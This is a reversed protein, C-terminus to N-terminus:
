PRGPLPSQTGGPDEERTKPFATVGLPDRHGGGRRRLWGRCGLHGCGVGLLPLSAGFKGKSRGWGMSLLAEGRGGDRPLPDAVSGAWHWQWPALGSVHGPLGTEALYCWEDGRAKGQVPALLTKSPKPQRLATGMPTISQKPLYSAPPSIGLVGWFQLIEAKGGQVGKEWALAPCWPLSM